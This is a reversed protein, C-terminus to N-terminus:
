GKAVRARAPRAPKAQEPEGPDLLRFLPTRGKDARCLELDLRVLDDTEPYPEGKVIMRESGDPRQQVLNDQAGYYRM